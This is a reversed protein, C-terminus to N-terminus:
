IENGIEYYKSYADGWVNESSIKFKANRDIVPNCTM